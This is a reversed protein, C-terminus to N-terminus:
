KKFSTLFIYGDSKKNKIKFPIFNILTLWGNYITSLLLFENMFLIYGYLSLSTTLLSAIPGGIAIFALEKNMFLFDRKTKLFGGIFFRNRITIRFSNIKFDVFYNGSGLVIEIYDAKLLKAILAHGCEHILNSIPGIIFILWVLFM